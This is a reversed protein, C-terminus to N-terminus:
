PLVFSVPIQDVVFELPDALAVKVLDVVLQCLNADPELGMDWQGLVERDARVRLVDFHLTCRCGLFLLLLTDLKSLHGRHALALEVDGLSGGVLRM